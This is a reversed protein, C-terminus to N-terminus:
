TMLHVTSLNTTQSSCADDSSPVHSSVALIIKGASVSERGLWTKVIAPKMGFSKSGVVHVEMTM